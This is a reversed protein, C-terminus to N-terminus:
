KLFRNRYEQYAMLEAKNNIDRTSNITQHLDASMADMEASFNTNATENALKVVLANAEHLKGILMELQNHEQEHIIIKDTM